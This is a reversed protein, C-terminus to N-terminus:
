NKHVNKTANHSAVVDRLADDFGSLLELKGHGEDDPKLAVLFFFGFLVNDDGGKLRTASM